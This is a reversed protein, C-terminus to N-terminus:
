LADEKVTRPQEPGRVRAGTGGFVGADRVLEEGYINHLLISKSRDPLTIYLM